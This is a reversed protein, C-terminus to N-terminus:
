YGLWVALRSGFPLNVHQERARATARCRQIDSKVEDHVQPCAWGNCCIGDNHFADCLTTKIDTIKWSSACRHKGGAPLAMHFLHSGLQVCNLTRAADRHNTHYSNGYPCCACVLSVCTNKKLPEIPATARPMCSPSDTYWRSGTSTRNEMEQLISLASGYLSVAVWM